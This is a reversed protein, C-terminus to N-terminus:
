KTLGLPAAPQVAHRLGFARVTTVTLWEGSDKVGQLPPRDTTSRRLENAMAPIIRNDGWGRVQLQAEQGELRTRKHPFGM